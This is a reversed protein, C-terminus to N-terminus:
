SVFHKYNIDCVLPYHDSVNSIDITSLKPRMSVKPCNVPLIYDLIDDNWTPSYNNKCCNAYIHGDNNNLDGTIIYSTFPSEEVLITIQKGACMDVDFMNSSQLHTTVINLCGTKFYLISKNGLKDPFYEDNLLVEKIFKIKYKSLVLLGSGEGVIYKKHTNGLLYYPYKSSLEKIIRRKFSDDFVEQLCIIDQEFSQLTRIVNTLRQEYVYPFIGQINWTVISKPIDSTNCENCNSRSINDSKRCLRLIRTVLKM